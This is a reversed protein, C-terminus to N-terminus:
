IPLSFFILWWDDLEKIDRIIKDIGRSIRAEKEEETENKKIDELRKIDNKIERYEKSFLKKFFEFIGKM